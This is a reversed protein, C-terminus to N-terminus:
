LMGGKEEVGTCGMSQSENVQDRVRMGRSKPDM